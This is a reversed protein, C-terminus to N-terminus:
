LEAALNRAIPSSPRIKLLSQAIQRAEDLRGAFALARAQEAQAVSSHPRLKLAQTTWSLIESPPAPRVLLEPHRRHLSAREMYNAIQYPDERMGAVFLADARAALSRDGSGIAQDRWAVAEAWYHAGKRPELRRAVSLWYLGRDARGAGLESVAERVALDALVPQALLAIAAFALASRVAPTIARGARELLQVAARALRPNDGIHTALAGLYAATLMATFPVFLPFDVMAHAFVTALAGGCAPVWPETPSPRSARVALVLATSSLAVLLVLGPLGFELWVQLYDNHVFPFVLDRFVGPKAAEFLPFFMNAGAGMIPRDLILGITTTYIEVRDWIGRGLGLWTDVATASGVGSNRAIPALIWIGLGVAIWGAVLHGAQERAGRLRLPGLCASVMALGALFALMGGRSESAYLGAFLWLALLYARRTGRGSLYIAALPVLFLNIAAAFTNPTVFTAAARDANRDLHWFGFLYQLLGILVLVSIIAVGARFLWAARERDLAAVSAFGGALILPWYIGDASYEPTIFEANALFWACASVFVLSIPNAPIAFRPASALALLVLAGWRLWPGM